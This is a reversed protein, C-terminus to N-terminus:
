EEDGGEPENADTFGHTGPIGFKRVKMADFDVDRGPPKLADAVGIIENLVGMVPLWPEDAYPRPIQPRPDRRQAAHWSQLGKAQAAAHQQRAAALTADIAPMNIGSLKKVQQRLAAAEVASLDAAVSAAAYIAVVEDKAATEIAKHVHAANYKLQYITRGHAFSHIWPAGDPRRLIKACCHGYDPGELPDSTEGEFRDPGSTAVHPRLEPDDFPLVINPLLVGERQRIIVARAAKESMGTRSALESSKAKIFREREKAEEPAVRAIEAAKLDKFRAREVISLPRCEAVTDLVVGEVV